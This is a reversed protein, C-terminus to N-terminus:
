LYKALLKQLALPLIDVTNHLMGPVKPINILNNGDLYKKGLIEDGSIVVFLFSVTRLLLM